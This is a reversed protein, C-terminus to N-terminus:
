CKGSVADSLSQFTTKVGSIGAVVTAASQGSPNSAANDVATGLTSVAGKLATAQPGFEKKASGVLTTASAQVNKVQARAASLGDSGLDVSTLKDISNQLDTRDQCVAPKAAQENGGCGAAATLTVVAITALAVRHRHYPVISVRAARGSGRMM